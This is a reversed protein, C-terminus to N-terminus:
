FSMFIAILFVICYTLMLTYALLHMDTRFFGSSTYATSFFQREGMFRIDIYYYILYVLVGIASGLLAGCLIDGPFHVGLYIRSYSSLLAWFFLCVTMLRSRLLLSLFVFLSFTNAAHSSVFGFRGGTYGRVTDITNLFTPDHTPRFRMVLPKIVGSSIRDALAVTVAIAVLILILRRMDNSKMLVYILVLLLPIWTTTKTILWMVSDWYVSDSGNLALFLTNDLDKLTELM